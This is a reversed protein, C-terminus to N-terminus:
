KKTRKIIRVIRDQEEERLKLQRLREKDGKILQHCKYHWVVVLVSRMMTAIIFKVCEVTNKVVMM